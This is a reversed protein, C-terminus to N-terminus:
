LYVVFYMNNRNYGARSPSSPDFVGELFYGNDVGCWGWNYHYYYTYRSPVYEVSGGVSASAAYTIVEKGGDCVWAHGSSADDGDVYAIGRSPTQMDKYLQGASGFAKFDSFNKEPTLTKFNNYATSSFAGTANTRYIANNIYGLQRGIRGLALHLEESTKCTSLHSDILSQSTSNLSTKHLLISQWDFDQKNVDREPYTLDFSKPLNIVSMMMMMATQVCGSLKNSCFIGEPYRQGLDSNILNFLTNTVTTPKTLDGGIFSSRSVTANAVYEKACELFYAYSQNEQAKSEDFSGSDVVGILAETAYSASILAYGKDDAYNVAYILTDSEARSLSNGLVEVSKVILQSSRSEYDGWPNMAIEIAEEITRIPAKDSKPAEIQLEAQNTCSLAGVLLLLFILKKM